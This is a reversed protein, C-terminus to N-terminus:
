LINREQSERNEKDVFDYIEKADVVECSEDYLTNEGLLIELDYNERNIKVTVMNDTSAQKGKAIVYDITRERVYYKNFYTSTKDDFIESKKFAVLRINNWYKDTARSRKSSGLLVRINGDSSISEKSECKLGLEEDISTMYEDYSYTSFAIFGAVLFLGIAGLVIWKISQKLFELFKNM